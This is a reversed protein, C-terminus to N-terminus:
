WDAPNWFNKKRAHVSTRRSIHASHVVAVFNKAGANQPGPWYLSKNCFRFSRMSQIWHPCLFMLHTTVHTPMETFLALDPNKTLCRDFCSLIKSLAFRSVLLSKWLNRNFLCLLLSLKYFWLIRLHITLRYNLITLKCLLVPSSLRSCVKHSSRSLFKTKFFKGDFKM